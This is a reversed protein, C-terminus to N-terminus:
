KVQTKNVTISKQNHQAYKIKLELHIQVNAAKQAACVALCQSASQQCHELYHYKLNM